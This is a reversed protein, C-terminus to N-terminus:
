GKREVNRAALYADPGFLRNGGGALSASADRLVFLLIPEDAINIKLLVELSDAALTCREGAPVLREGVGLQCFCRRVCESAVYGVKRPPTHSAKSHGISKKDVRPRALAWAM